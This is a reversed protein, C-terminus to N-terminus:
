ARLQKEADVVDRNIRGIAHFSKEKLKETVSPAHILQRLLQIVMRFYRVLEGEDVTSKRMVKEFSVNRYWAEMYETLNFYFGKTYPRIHYKREKQHVHRGYSESTRELNQFRKPLDTRDDGKRPEYILAALIVVLEVPNLEELFGDGEM